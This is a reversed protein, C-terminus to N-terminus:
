CEAAASAPEGGAAAADARLLLRLRSVASGSGCGGVDVGVQILQQQIIRIVFLNAHRTLLRLLLLLLHPASTAQQHACGFQPAGGVGFEGGGGGGCV